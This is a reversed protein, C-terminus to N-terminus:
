QSCKAKVKRLDAGQRLTVRLPEVEAPPEGILARRFVGLHRDMVLEQLRELVQEPMEANGAAELASCLAEKRLALEEAEDM